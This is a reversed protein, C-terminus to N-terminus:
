GAALGHEALLRKNALIDATAGDATWVGGSFTSTVTGATATSLSGAAPDSLTLTVTVAVSDVDTVVIDTLDLSIDETYTEATNLNTATPPMSPTSTPRKRPVWRGSRAMRMPEAMSKASNPTASM